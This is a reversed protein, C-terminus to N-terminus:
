KGRPQGETTALEGTELLQKLRRLDEHIQVAPDEGAVKALWDRLTDSPLDLRFALHVETGRGPLSPGFRLAGSTAIESGSVSAWSLMRDEEDDLIETEWELYKGAGFVARWRARDGAVEVAEIATMFRPFNEMQRCFRYLDSAPRLITIAREVTIGSVGIGKREM